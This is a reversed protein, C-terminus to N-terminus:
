AHGPIINKLEAVDTKHKKAKANRRDLYEQSAPLNVIIAANKQHFYYWIAIGAATATFLVAPLVLGNKPHKFINKM